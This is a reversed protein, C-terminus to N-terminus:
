DSKMIAVTYGTIPSGGTGSAEWTITVQINTNVQVNLNGPVEPSGIM